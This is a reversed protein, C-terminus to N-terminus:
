PRAVVALCRQLDVGGLPGLVANRYVVGIVILRGRHGDGERGVAVEVVGDGAQCHQQVQADLVVDDGLAHRCEGGHARPEVHNLAHVVARDDDVTVGAVVVGQSRREVEHRPARAAPGARDDEAVQTGLTVTAVFEIDAHAFQEFGLADAAQHADALVHAAVAVVEVVQGLGAEVVVGLLEHAVKGLAVEVVLGDEDLTVRAEAEALNDVQELSLLVHRDHLHVEVGQGM